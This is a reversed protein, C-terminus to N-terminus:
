EGGHLMLLLLPAAWGRPMSVGPAQFLCVASPPGPGPTLPGSCSVGLGQGEGPLSAESEQVQRLFILNPPSRPCEWSSMGRLTASEGWRGRGVEGM